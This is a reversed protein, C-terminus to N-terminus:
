VRSLLLTIGIAALVLGAVAVVWVRPRRAPRLLPPLQGPMQGPMHDLSLTGPISGSYPRPAPLHPRTHAMSPTLEILSESPRMAPLQLGAATMTPIKAGRLRELVARVAALTPRGDPEKSLMAEILQVLEEPVGPCKPGLPPVPEDQHALMTDISSSARFPLSGSLLEYALVGLSYVDTRHDVTDSARAQEPSMYAPTGMVSGALTRYKGSSISSQTSSLKLLGWDLIRVEPWRGPVSVM